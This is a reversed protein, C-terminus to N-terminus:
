NNKKGEEPNQPGLNIILVVFTEANLTPSRGPSYM